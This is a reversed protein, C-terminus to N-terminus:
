QSIMAKLTGIAKQAEAFAGDECQKEMGKLAAGIKEKLATSAYKHNEWSQALADVASLCSTGSTIPAITADQARATTALSLGLCIALVTRLM